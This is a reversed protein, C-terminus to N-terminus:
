IETKIVECNYIGRYVEAFHCIFFAHTIVLVRSQFTANERILKKLNEIRSKLEAESETKVEENEFLDCIEGQRFERCLDTSILKKYTIKSSALTQQARELTSCIVLDYEGSIERAQSIGFETLKPNCVKKGINGESQGHRLLDVPIKKIKNLYHNLNNQDIPQNRIKLAIECAQKGVQFENAYYAVRGLIHWRTYTYIEKDLFLYTKPVPVDCARRAFMYALQLFGHKIYLEAIKVLPEARIPRRAEDSTGHECALLYLKIVDHFDHKLQVACDAMRMYSEYIEDYYGILNVRIQSYYYAEETRGISQCSQALYFVTRPDPNKVDKKYEQLLLEYDKQHRVGSSACGKSRDQYLEILKSADFIENQKTPHSLWEHVVGKYRWGSRNRILRPYNLNHDYVGGPVVWHLNVMFATIHAPLESVLERLPKNTRLEDNCDLQLLFEANITDAYDLLVNRSTSFDVFEGIKLHLPINAEKSFTQLIEITKDTSGTDFVVLSDVQNRLSNLTVGIREQENKLMMVCAIKM